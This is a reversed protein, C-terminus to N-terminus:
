RHAEYLTRIASEVKSGLADLDRLTYGAPSIPAGIVLKLDQPMLHYTNMPLMEYTGLIAMPIVPVQAKIAIYFPGSM